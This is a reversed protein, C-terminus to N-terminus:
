QVATFDLHIYTDDNLRIMATFRIGKHQCIQLSLPNITVAPSHHYTKSNKDKQYVCM